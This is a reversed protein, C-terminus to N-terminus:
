SISIEQLEVACLQSEELVSFDDSNDYLGHSLVFSEGGTFCFRVGVESPLERQKANMQARKLVTVGSVSLGVIQTWFEGAFQGVESIAFLEEDSELSASEQGESRAAEDWVIVSNLSPDSAFGLITGDEFYVALPGATLSFALEDRIGCQTAVEEAPWWSYRTLKTVKKGILPRLLESAKSPFMSVMYKTSM